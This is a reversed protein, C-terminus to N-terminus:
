QESMSTNVTLTHCALVVTQLVTWLMDGVSQVRYYETWPEYKPSRHPIHFSM